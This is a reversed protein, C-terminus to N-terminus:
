APSRERLAPAWADMGGALVSAEIGAGQQARGAREAGVGVKCVVVVPGAGALSPEALLRALPVEVVGPLVGTATEHPERVDLLTAGAAQAALATGLDVHAIGHLPAPAAVTPVEAVVRVAPGLPVEDTRGRLADIVLVRGLLPEGVGTVLKVTEAALIAGVQLCLPGLVGVQECSPVDGVSEPPYLDSLVVAPIGAPPASWFVTAQAHFEQVVGWVLPVGLQACAVAVADRTEFTDTGDVVVHAGALLQAANGRTLRAGVAHVTTRPSLDHAVRVASDVKPRGIDAARHMVQRQLNSAEVEDDDIVTLTGIGAAALALVTPSGLGGAGVVAVHAAALRRQAVEGFGALSAHRATRAAEDDALAAVPEVLPPIPM